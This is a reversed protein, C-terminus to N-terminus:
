IRLFALGSSTVVLSFKMSSDSLISLNLKMLVERGADWKLVILGFLVQVVLGSLVIRWQIAKRNSSLAIAIAFVVLIGIIGWVYDM